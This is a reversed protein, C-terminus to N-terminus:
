IHLSATILPMNIHAKAVVAVRNFKGSVKLCGRLPDIMPTFVSASKDGNLKSKKFGPCRRV